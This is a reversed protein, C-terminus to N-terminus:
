GVPSLLVLLSLVEFIAFLNKCVSSNGICYQLHRFEWPAKSDCFRFVATLVGPAGFNCTLSYFFHGSYVVIYSKYRFLGFLKNRNLAKLETLTRRQPLTM